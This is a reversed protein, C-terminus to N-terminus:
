APDQPLLREALWRRNALILVGVFVGAVAPVLRTGSFPSLEGSGGGRLAAPLEVFWTLFTPMATVAPYLGIFTVALLTLDGSTMGSGSPAPDPFVMRALRARDRLLRLSAWGLFASPVLAVVRQGLSLESNGLLVASFFLLVASLGAQVGVWVFM